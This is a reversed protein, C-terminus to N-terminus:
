EEQHGNRDCNSKSQALIEKSVMWIPLKYHSLEDLLEATTDSTYVPLTDGSLNVFTDWQGAYDDVAVQLGWLTPENM